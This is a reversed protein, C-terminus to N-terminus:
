ETRDPEINRMVEVTFEERAKNLTVADEIAQTREHRSAAVVFDELMRVYQNAIAEKQQAVVNAEQHQKQERLRQYEKMKKFRPSM